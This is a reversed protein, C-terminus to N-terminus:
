AFPNVPAPGPVWTNGQWVWRKDPSAGGKTKGFSNYGETPYNRYQLMGDADAEDKDMVDDTVVDIHGMGTIQLWDNLIRFNPNNGDYRGGYPNYNFLSWDVGHGVFGDGVVRPPNINPDPSGFTTKTRDKTMRAGVFYMNFNSIVGNPSRNAHIQDGEFVWDSGLENPNLQYNDFQNTAM